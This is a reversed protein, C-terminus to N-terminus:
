DIVLRRNTDFCYRNSVERLVIYWRKLKARRWRNLYAARRWHKFLHMLPHPRELLNSSQIATLFLTETRERRGVWTRFVLKKLRKESCVTAIRNAIREAENAIQQSKMTARANEILAAERERAVIEKLNREEIAVKARMEELRREEEALKEQWEHIRKDERINRRNEEQARNEIENKYEGSDSWSEFKRRNSNKDREQFSDESKTASIDSHYNAVNPPIPSLTRYSEIYGFTDITDSPAVKTIKEMRASNEIKQPYKIRSAHRERLSGQVITIPETKKSIPLTKFPATNSRVIPANVNVLEVGGKPLILSKSVIQIPQVIQSPLPDTELTSHINGYKQSVLETNLETLIPIESDDREYPILCEIEDNQQRVIDISNSMMFGEDESILHSTIAMEDVSLSSTSCSRIKSELFSDGGTTTNEIPKLKSIVFGLNKAAHTAKM